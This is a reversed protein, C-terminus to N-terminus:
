EGRHGDQTFLDDLPDYLNYTGTTNMEVCLYPNCTSAYVGANPFIWQNDQTYSPTGFHPMM